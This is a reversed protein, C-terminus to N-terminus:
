PQVAAPKTEHTGSGNGQFGKTIELTDVHWQVFQVTHALTGAWHCHGNWTM